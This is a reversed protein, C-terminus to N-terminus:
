TKRSGFADDSLSRGAALAYRVLKRWANWFWLQSARQRCTLFPLNQAWCSRYRPSKWSAAPRGSSCPKSFAFTAIEFISSLFWSPRRGGSSPIAFTTSDLQWCTKGSFDLMWDYAENCAAIKLIKRNFRIDKFGLRSRIM